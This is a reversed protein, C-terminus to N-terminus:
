PTSLYYEILIQLRKFDTKVEILDDDNPSTRYFAFGELYKKIPYFQHKTLTYIKGM